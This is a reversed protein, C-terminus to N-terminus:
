KTKKKETKNQFYAQKRVIPELDEKVVKVLDEHTRVVRIPRFEKSKKDIFSKIERNIKRKDKFGEKEVEDKLDPSKNYRKLNLYLSNAQIKQSLEDLKDDYLKLYYDIMSMDKHGTFQAIEERTWGDSAQLSIFTSRNYKFSFDDMLKKYEIIPESTRGKYTIYRVNRDFCLEKFATKNFEPDEVIVSICEKLNRNIHQDSFLKFKYNNRKLLGEAMPSIPNEVFTKTKDQVFSIYGESFDANVLKPLDSIRQGGLAYSFLFLDRTEDLKKFSQHSGVYIYYYLLSIEYQNLAQPNFVTEPTKYPFKFKKYSRSLDYDDVYYNMCWRVHDIHKRITSHNYLNGQDDLKLDLFWYCFQDFFSQNVEKVKFRKHKQKQFKRLYDVTSVYKPNNKIKSAWEFFVDLFLGDAFADKVSIKKGSLIKDIPEDLSRKILPLWM